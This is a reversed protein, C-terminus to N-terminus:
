SVRVEAYIHRETAKDGTSKKAKLKKSGGVAGSYGRDRYKTGKTFLTNAKISYKFFRNLNDVDLGYLVLITCDTACWVPIYGRLKTSTKPVIEHAHVPHPSFAENLKGYAYPGASDASFRVTRYNSEKTEGIVPISLRDFNSATETSERQTIPQKVNDDNKASIGPMTHFPVYMFKVDKAATANRTHLISRAHSPMTGRFESLCGSLGRLMVTNETLVAHRYNLVSIFRRFASWGWLFALFSVVLAIFNFTQHPLNQEVAVM